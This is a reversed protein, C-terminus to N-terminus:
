LGRPLSRTIGANSTIFLQKELRDLTFFLDAVEGSYNKSFDAKVSSAGLVGDGNTATNVAIEDYMRILLHDWPWTLLIRKGVVSLNRSVSVSGNSWVPERVSHYGDRGMYVFQGHQADYFIDSHSIGKYGFNNATRSVENHVITFPLSYIGEREM